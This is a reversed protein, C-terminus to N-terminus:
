YTPSIHGINQKSTNFLEAIQNQNMWVMGDQAYHAVSAKGDVTNYIIIDQRDEGM